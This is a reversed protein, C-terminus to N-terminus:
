INIMLLVHTIKMEKHRKSNWGSCSKGTGSSPFFSLPCKQALRKSSRRRSNIYKPIVKVGQPHDEDINRCVVGLTNYLVFPNILIHWNSGYLVIFGKYLHHQAEHQPVRTLSDNLIPVQQLNLRRTVFSRHNRFSTGASNDRQPVKPFTLWYYTSSIQVM